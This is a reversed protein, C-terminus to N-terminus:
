DKMPLYSGKLHALIKVEFHSIMTYLIHEWCGMFIHFSREALGILKSGQPM